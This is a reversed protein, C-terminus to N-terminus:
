TCGANFAILFASVDFFNFVGDDTFDAIPDNDFDGARVHEIYGIGPDFLRSPFIAGPCDQAAAHPACIAWISMISVVQIM